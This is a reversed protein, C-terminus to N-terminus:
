HAFVCQKFDGFPLTAFHMNRPSNKGARPTLWYRSRRDRIHVVPWLTGVTALSRWNDAV